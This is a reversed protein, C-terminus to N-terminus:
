LLLCQAEEWPAHSKPFQPGLVQLSFAQLKLLKQWKMSRVIRKGPCPPVGQTQIQWSYFIEEKRVLWLGASVWATWGSLQVTLIEECSGLNRFGCQNKRLVFNNEPQSRSAQCHFWSHLGWRISKAQMFSAIGYELSHEVSPCLPPCTMHMKQNGPHFLNFLVEGFCKHICHSVQALWGGVSLNWLCSTTHPM